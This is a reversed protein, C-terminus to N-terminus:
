IVARYYVTNGATPSKRSIRLIDGAKAGIAKAVPDDSKIRPLQKLSVGFEELVEKKEKASLIEHKPVMQHKLIDAGM